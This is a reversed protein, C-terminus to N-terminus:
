GLCPLLQYTAARKDNHFWFFDFCKSFFQPKVLLLERFAESDAEGCNGPPLIAVERRGLILDVLDHRDTVDHVVGLDVLFLQARRDDMDPGDRGNQQCYCSTCGDGGGDNSSYSAVNAPRANRGQQFGFGIRFSLRRLNKVCLGIRLLNLRCMLTGTLSALEEERRVEWFEGCIAGVDGGQIGRAHRRLDLRVPEGHECPDKCCSRLRLADRGRRRGLREYVGSSSRLGAAQAPGGPWGGLGQGRGQALGDSVPGDPHGAGSL